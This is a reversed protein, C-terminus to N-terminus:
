RVERLRVTAGFGEAVGLATNNSIVLRVDYGVFLGELLKTVGNITTGTVAQSKAVAFSDLQLYRTGSQMDLAKAMIKVTIDSVTSPNYISLAYTGKVNTPKTFDVNIQTNAGASNAFSALQDTSIQTGSVHLMKTFFNIIGQLM